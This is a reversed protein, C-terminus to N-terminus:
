LIFLAIIYSISCGVGIILRSFGILFSDYSLWYVVAGVFVIFISLPFVKKIGKADLIYGNPVQLIAYALFYLANLKLLLSEDISLKDMIYDANVVPSLQLFATISVFFLAILFIQTRAFFSM